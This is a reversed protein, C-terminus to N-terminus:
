EKEPRRFIELKLEAKLIGCKRCIANDGMSIHGKEPIPAWDHNCKKQKRKKSKLEMNRNIAEIIENIKNALVKYDVYILKLNIPVNSSVKLKKVKM